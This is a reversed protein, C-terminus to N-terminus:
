QPYTKQYFTKYSELEKLQSLKAFNKANILYAEFDNAMTGIVIKAGPSKFTNMYLQGKEADAFTKVIVLQTTSNLETNILQYKEGRFFEGNFNSLKIKQAEASGSESPIVVIFFHTASMDSEFETENLPTDPNVIPEGSKLKSLYIKAQQGEESEPSRKYLELLPSAIATENGPDTKSIAFAKLLYYKNLYKNTTDTYIIRNCTTIVPGYYRQQYDILTKAYENLEKKSEEEKKRLYDPDRMIEAIESDPYRNLIMQKYTEAEASGKKSYILYLQYMAALVRPHEVNRDVVEKFYRIAESEEKLQEKYIVGLMYLSNIMRNNSSDMASETLPINVLLDEVTLTDKKVSITGTGSSDTEENEFSFSSKEARRWNDELPRSGWQARFDNFGSGRVKANYFYWKSGAGTSATQNNVKTQTQLLREQEQKKRLAEAEELDKLTQKLFKERQEPNMGAIMQVSDEFVVTEYHYVLESLGDAKSKIAVYDEYDEPLVKVCSDYYKQAKVYEQDEFSMDALRLYSIGKQRNNKVSWYASATYNKFAGSDNGEKVDMEGLVYYIQDKYEANKEDRLMKYLQKRIDASGGTASLASNIKAQFRMEYPANSRAVKNYYYTAMAGDGTLQYLQALVFMYRAKRKKDKCVDIALLLHEIAPKYEKQQIHFDAMTAEYDVELRKPFVAPEKIGKKERKKKEFRKGKLDKIKQFFKRDRSEKATNMSSEVLTLIRKAEAYNGLVIYTKALWIQAEYVSEEGIYTKQVYKFKQEAALYERKYFHIQAIVLWNDDIWRCLEEDKKKKAQMPMSHRLIVRECKEIGRDMEPFLSSADKDAPFVELPLLKYYEDQYTDRYADISTEVIVGANYYGNFRATMNHYGRNLAVDKETSCSQNLGILLSLLVITRYM